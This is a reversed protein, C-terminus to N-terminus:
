RSNILEGECIEGAKLIKVRVLSRKRVTEPWPKGTSKNVKVPLYNSTIGSIGSNDMSEVVIEAEKGEWLAAYNLFLKESLKLLSHVREDREREPVRDKLFVAETGPRPSYPFVHLRSFALRNILSYSDMFDNSGEGPFGAIIDAAIFPNEKAKRLLGVSSYIRDRNYRRKMLNLIRNSGSQVPIHFHSCIRPDSLINALERDIKEPELSSIRMRISIDSSLIERLLCKFDCGESFYSAINVGTFVVERYGNKELERIHNVIHGSNLSVSPGRALPVRCYTCNYDCGDQIKLFARSHFSYSNIEYRFRDERHGSNSELFQSFLEAKENFKLNKFKAIGETERIFLPFDLLLDKKHQDVAVVNEGTSKLIEPDLQAYCGTAIVLAEPNERSVRRLWKRSKQDSKSTVTCSNLLFLDANENSKVILFGQGRFSSALAETEMQNLKCGLTYFSAKM